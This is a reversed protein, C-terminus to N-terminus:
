TSRQSSKSKTWQRVLLWHSFHRTITYYSTHFVRTVAVCWESSVVCCALRLRKFSDWLHQVIPLGEHVMQHRFIGMCVLSEIIRKSDEQQTKKHAISQSCVPLFGTFIDMISSISHCCSHCEELMVRHEHFAMVILGHCCLILILVIKICTTQVMPFAWTWWLQQSLPFNAAVVTDDLNM